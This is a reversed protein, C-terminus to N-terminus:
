GEAKSIVQLININDAHIKNIGYEEVDTYFTSKAIVKFDPTHQNICKIDYVKGSAAATMRGSRLTCGPPLHLGRYVNPEYQLTLGCITQHEFPCSDCDKVHTANIVEVVKAKM